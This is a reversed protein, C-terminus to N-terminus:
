NSSLYDICSNFGGRRDKWGETQAEINGNNQFSARIRAPMNVFIVSLLQKNHMLLSIYAYQTVRLDQPGQPLTFNYYM